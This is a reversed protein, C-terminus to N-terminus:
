PVSLLMGSECVTNQTADCVAGKGTLVRSEGLVPMAAKSCADSAMRSDRGSGMATYPACGNVVHDRLLRAVAHDLRDTACLADRTQVILAHV